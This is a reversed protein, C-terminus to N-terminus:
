DLTGDMVFDKYVVVGASTLTSLRITPSADNTTRVQFTVVELTTPLVVSLATPSAIQTTALVTTYGAGFTRVTDIINTASANDRVTISQSFSVAAVLLLAMIMPVLYKKM